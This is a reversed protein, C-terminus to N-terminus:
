ATKRRRHKAEHCPICRTATNELTDKRGRSRPIIHDGSLNRFRGCDVCRWGDREMALRSVRSWNREVLRELVRRPHKGHDELIPVDAEFLGYHNPLGDEILRVEFGTISAARRATVIETRGGNERQSQCGM